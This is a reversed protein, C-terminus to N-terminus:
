VYFHNIFLECLFLSAREDDARIIWSFAVGGSCAGEEGGLRRLGGGLHRQIVIM